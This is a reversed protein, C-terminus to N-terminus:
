FIKIEEDILRVTKPGIVETKVQFLRAGIKIITGPLAAHEIKIHANKFEYVNTTIITKREELMKLQQDIKTLATKLNKLLADERATLKKKSKLLPQYKLLTQTLKRKNEAIEVLQKETNQLEDLLAFDAGVELFTKVGSSNGIGPGAPQHLDHRFRCLIQPNNIGEIGSLINESPHAIEFLKQRSKLPAHWQGKRGIICAGALDM